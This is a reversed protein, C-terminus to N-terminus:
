KFYEQPSVGYEKKFASSFYSSHRFGVAFAAESISLDEEQILKMAEEFRLKAITKNITVDSVKRWKRYLTSESMVLAEALLEISLDPNGLHRAIVSTVQGVLPHEVNELGSEM